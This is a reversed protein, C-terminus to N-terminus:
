SSRVNISSVGIMGAIRELRQRALEAVSVLSSSILMGCGELGPTHCEEHESWEVEWALEGTSKVLMEPRADKNLPYWALFPIDREHLQRCALAVRNWDRGADPCYPPDLFVLDFDKGQLYGYGDSNTVKVKVNDPYLEASLSDYQAAVETASDCLEIDLQSVRSGLTRAVFLWGAPYRWQKVWNHAEGVYPDNADIADALLRGIGLQWEGADGLCHFPAGSHSEVYRFPGNSGIFSVVYVLVAHKWVDGANGAKTSHDYDM